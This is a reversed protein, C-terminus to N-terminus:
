FFWFLSCPSFTTSLKKFFYYFYWIQAHFINMVCSIFSLELANYQFTNSIFHETCSATLYSALTLLKYSHLEQWRTDREAKESISLVASELFVM